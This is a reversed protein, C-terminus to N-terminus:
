ETQGFRFYESQGAQCEWPFGLTEPRFREVVGAETESKLRGIMEHSYMGPVLRKELPVTGNM